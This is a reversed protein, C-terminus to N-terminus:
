FRKLAVLTYHIVTLM